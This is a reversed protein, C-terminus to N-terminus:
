TLAHLLSNRSVLLAIHPLMFMDDERRGESLEEIWVLPHRPTTSITGNENFTVNDHVLMEQYVYPGVEEVKLKETGALFEDPNTINYLYIKIYLNVPPKAWLDFIEGGEGFM